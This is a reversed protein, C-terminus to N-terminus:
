GRAKHSTRFRRPTAQSVADARFSKHSKENRRGLRFVNAKPAHDGQTSMERFLLPDETPSRQWETKEMERHDTTEWVQVVYEDCRKTVHKTDTRATKPIPLQNSEHSNNEGRKWACQHPESQMKRDTEQRGDQASQQHRRKRVRASQSSYTWSLAGYVLPFRTSIICCRSLILLVENLAIPPEEGGPNCM